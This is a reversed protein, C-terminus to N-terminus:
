QKEAQEEALKEKTEEKKEKPVEKPEEKPTEKTEEKPQEKAEKAEKGQPAVEEAPAEGLPKSGEKVVKLNIQRIIKTIREGCVTRRKLLGDQKKKNRDKGSFGVGGEIMVKKRPEQIGKRMPFGCKDSGGTILFEYGPLGLQNGSVNDGLKKNHFAEAQTDKFEKQYSKGDKAGIVVKYDM